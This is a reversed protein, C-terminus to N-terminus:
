YYIITRYYVHQPEHSSRGDKTVWKSTTRKTWNGHSDFVYAYQQKSRISGDRTEFITEEVENGQDDLLSLYRQNLSGNASYVLEERQNGSYNYVYRLWLKGDNGLSTKETLRKKDDSKFTFKHSYRSDYKPAAEVAPSRIMMPPPNYEQRISEWDSVRAGDLYGYVTIDSLNGQYDYSEKKTLNGRENYYAMSNPKRTQVTWAGSLDQSETFVTKVRGRLGEDQADSGIRPAVPEQPLPSPQAKAAQEKRATAVEEENLIKFSDLVKVAIAEHVRQDSKLMVVVQYLRSSVLYIRYILLGTFFEFRLERAQHKNLEIQKDSVLKGGSEKALREMGERVGAFISKSTELDDLSKAADVYGATFAGEKMRWEYADGTATGIPTPISLGRFGHQQQPLAISFRGQLSVFPGAAVVSPESKNEVSFGQARIPPPYASLLFTFALGTVVILRIPARLLLHTTGPKM